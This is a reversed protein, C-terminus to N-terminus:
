HMWRTLPCWALKRCMPSCMITRQLGRTVKRRRRDRRAVGVADPRSDAEFAREVAAMLADPRSVGEAMCAIVRTHDDDVFNMYDAM